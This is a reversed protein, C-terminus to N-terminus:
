LPTAIYMGDLHGWIGLRGYEGWQLPSVSDLLGGPTPSTTTPHHYLDCSRLGPSTMELDLCDWGSIITFVWNNNNCKLNSLQFVTRQVFTSLPAYSDEWHFFDTCLFGRLSLFRRPRHYLVCTNHTNETYMYLYSPLGTVLWVTHPLPVIHPVLASLWHPQVTNCTSEVILHGKWRLSTVEKM